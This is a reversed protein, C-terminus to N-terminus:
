VEFNNRSCCIYEVLGKLRGQVTAGVFRDAYESNNAEVKSDFVKRRYRPRFLRKGDHTYDAKPFLSNHETVLQNTIELLDDTYSKVMHVALMGIDGETKCEEIEPYYDWITILYSVSANVGDEEVEYDITECTVVPLDDGEQLDRIQMIPIYGMSTNALHSGEVLTKVAEEVPDSFRPVLKSM